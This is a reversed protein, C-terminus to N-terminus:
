LHYREVAPMEAPGAVKKEPTIKFWLCLGRIELYLKLVSMEDEYKITIHFNSLYWRTTTKFIEM